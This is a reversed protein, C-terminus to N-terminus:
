TVELIAPRPIGVGDVEIQLTPWGAMETLILPGAEQVLITDESKTGEISPNWAFAQGPRVVFSSEPTALWERPEYGAPGGQHHRRWEEPFGVEQYTAVGRALVQGLTVGPRTAAILAADVRTVAQQKRLLSDPLRGFHVLRTVSCVLGKWRGCLVLMAYRELQRPTPLPHRYRFVREDTAILIVIPQVARVECERAVLGAIEDETRGPRVDRIAAAMAEACLRGLDRFRGGEEPTLDSRLLALDESLDVLGPLLADAGIAGGPVLSQLAEPSEHWPTVLMEWGQGALREEEELRPAEINNTLVLRRSPTILLSAEAWTSAINISASAGGTAWSFSSARRLLIADLHRDEM